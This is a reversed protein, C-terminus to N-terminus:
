KIELRCKQALQHRIRQLISENIKEVKTDCVQIIEKANVVHVGDPLAKREVWWGPITLIATVVIPEGIASTLWKALTQANNRTQDIEQHTKFGSPWHLSKEDVIVKFQTEGTQDLPKRRTKTEVVFVGGKGVLVHDMNFGDFPVDHYIEFGKAILASLEEGVYREGEFGLQYDRRTKILALLPRTFIFVWVFSTLFFLLCTGLGHDKLFFLFFVALFIPVLLIFTIRENISEDLDMVKLRLTEGVPRRRLEQFPLKRSARLINLQRHVLFVMGALPALCLLCGAISALDMSVIIDAIGKGNM